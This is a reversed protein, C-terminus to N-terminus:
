YIETDVPILTYVYANIFIIKGETSLITPWDVGDSQKQCECSSCVNEVNEEVMYKGYITGEEVM